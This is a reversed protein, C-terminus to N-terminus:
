FWVTYAQVDNLPTFCAFNSSFPTSKAMNVFISYFMLFAYKPGPFYTHKSLVKCPHNGFWLVVGGWTLIGFFNDIKAQPATKAETSNKEWAGGRGSDEGVPSLFKLGLGRNFILLCFRALHMYDSFIANFHESFSM